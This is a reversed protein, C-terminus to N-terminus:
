VGEDLHKDRSGVETASDVKIGDLDILGDAWSPEADGELAGDADGVIDGHRLKWGSEAIERQEMNAVIGFLQWGLHSGLTSHEHGHM